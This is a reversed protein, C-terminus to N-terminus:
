LASKPVALTCFKPKAPIVSFLKLKASGPAILTPQSSAVNNPADSGSSWTNNSKHKSIPAFVTPLKSTSKELVGNAISATSTPPLIKFGLRRPPAKIIVHSSAGGGTSVITVGTSM